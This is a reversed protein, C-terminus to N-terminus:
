LLQYIMWSLVLNVPESYKTQSTIVCHIPDGKTSVSTCNPKTRQDCTKSSIQLSYTTQEYFVTAPFRLILKNPSQQSNRTDREEKWTLIILGRWMRKVHCTKLESGTMLAIFHKSLSVWVERKM